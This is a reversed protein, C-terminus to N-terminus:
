VNIHFMLLKDFISSELIKKWFLQQWPLNEIRQYENYVVIQTIQKIRYSKQWLVVPLPEFHGPIIMGPLNQVNCATIQRTKKM